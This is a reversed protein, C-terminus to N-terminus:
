SARGRRGKKGDQRHSPQEYGLKTYLEMIDVENAALRRAIDDRSDDEPEPPTRLFTGAGHMTEVRGERRLDDIAREVTNVAVGYHQRLHEKSPLRGAEDFEGAAIRSRLDNAIHRYKPVAHGPREM